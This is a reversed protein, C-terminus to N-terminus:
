HPAWARSRYAQGRPPSATPLLNPDHSRRVKTFGSLDWHGSWRLPEAPRSWSGESCSHGGDGSPGPERREEVVCVERERGQCQNNGDCKLNADVVGIVVAVTNSAGVRSAYTRNTQRRGSGCRRLAYSANCQEREENPANGAQHNDDSRGLPPQYGNTRHGNESRPEVGASM